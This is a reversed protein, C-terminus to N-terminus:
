RLARNARTALDHCAKLMQVDLLPRDPQEAPPALPPQKGQLLHVNTKAFLAYRHAEARSRCLGDAVLAKEFEAMTDVHKIFTMEAELQAPFVVVSVEMLDGQKIILYEDDEADKEDVYEFEELVFGVSFNLGGNQRSAEYLDKVYSVNLNLQAELRLEQDVTKLRKIVGAPKSWDHFALLKIGRPGSLGKKKISKDFAGALVKHGYLDTAPTSAIGAIFGEPADEVAHAASAMDFQLRDGPKWQKRDSM